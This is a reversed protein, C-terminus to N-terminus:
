SLDQILLSLIKINGFSPMSDILNWIYQMVLSNNTIQLLILCGNPIYKIDVSFYNLSKIPKDFFFNMNKEQGICCM